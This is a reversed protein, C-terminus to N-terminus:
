KKGKNLYQPYKHAVRQDWENFGPVNPFSSRDPWENYRSKFQAAAAACTAGRHAQNALCQHWYKIKAAEGYDIPSADGRNVKKLLGKKVAVDKGKKHKKSGCNPCVPTGTYLASCVECMIQLPTKNLERNENYLREVKCTKEISWEIDEDPFGHMLTAGSHDIVICNEKGYSPRLARGCRQRFKVISRTPAALIVCGVKPQDWGVSLVDCNTVIDLNGADLDALIEDREEAETYGDLHQARIGKKRFEDMIHISHTITSAFCVTPRSDPNLRQWETVVNGVIKPQEMKAEATKEWEKSKVGKMNPIDPAFVQAPVLYGEEILTEYSAALVLRDYVDGIGKGDSRAPTATLGVIVMQPNKKRLASILAQYEAAMCEHCEDVVLLDTVPVEMKSKRLTRSAITGKSAVQIPAAETLPQGNMIIGHVLGFEDLHDSTQMILERRPAIFLCRKEKKAAGEMLMCSIFTKGSGTPSVLIQDRYGNAIGWRLSEVCKVQYHRPEKPGSLKVPEPPAVEKFQAVSETDDGFLELQDSM